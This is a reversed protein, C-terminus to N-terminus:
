PLTIRDRLSVGGEQERIMTEYDQQEDNGFWKKVLLPIEDLRTEGDKLIEYFEQKAEDLCARIKYNPLQGSLGRKKIINFYLLGFKRKKEEWQQTHYKEDNM